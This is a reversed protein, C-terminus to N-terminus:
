SFALNFLIISYVQCCYGSPKNIAILHTDDYLVCNSLDISKSQKTSNMKNQREMTVNEFYDPIHLTTSFSFHDGPKCRIRNFYIIFITSRILQNM